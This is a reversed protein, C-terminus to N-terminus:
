KNKLIHRYQREVEELTQSLAKISKQIAKIESERNPTKKNSAAESLRDLITTFVAMQQILDTRQRELRKRNRSKGLAVWPAVFVMVPVFIHELFIPERKTLVWQCPTLKMSTLLGTREDLWCVGGLGVFWWILGTPISFWPNGAIKLLFKLKDEM